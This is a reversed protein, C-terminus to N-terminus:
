PPSSIGTRGSDAGDRRDGHGGAEPIAIEAWVHKVHHDSEVGWDRALAAVIMLGRGKPDTPAPRSPVVDGGADDLVEIRISTDNLGLFLEILSSGASVANTVLESAIIAADAVVDGYDRGDLVSALRRTCFNRAQGISLPHPRLPKVVQWV